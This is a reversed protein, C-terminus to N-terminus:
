ELLFLKTTTDADFRIHSRCDTRQFHRKWFLHQGVTKVALAFWDFFQKQYGDVDSLFYFSGTSANVKGVQGLLNAFWFNGSSDIETAVILWQAKEELKFTNIKNFDEDNFPFRM